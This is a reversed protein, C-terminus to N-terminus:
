EDKTKADHSKDKYHVLLSFKASEKSLQNSLKAFEDGKATLPEIQKIIKWKQDCEIQFSLFILPSTLDLKDM